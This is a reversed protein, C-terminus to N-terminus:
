YRYTRGTKSTGSVGEMSGGCDLCYTRGTLWYDPADDGQATLEALTKAGLRKNLAFRHQVKEFTLDDVLRPMGDKIVQKGYSYEGIYARNKLIKNLNKPAFKGGRTTRIEQANLRHCIKQM